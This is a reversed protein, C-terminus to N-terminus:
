PSTRESLRLLALLAGTAVLLAVALLPLPVHYVDPGITNVGRIRMLREPVLVPVANVGAHLAICPVVSGTRVGLGALLLGALTAPVAATPILGAHLAGFLAASVLVAARAGHRRALSGLMAGRFVLEEGVPAVVVVALLIALGSFVDDPTLLQRLHMRAELSSPWVEELVNQVEALPFQGALGAVFALAAVRIPVPELRLPVRLGREAKWVLAVAVAAACAAAQTLALNLPDLSALRLGESFPLGRAVAQVTAALSMAAHLVTWLTAATLVAGWWPM